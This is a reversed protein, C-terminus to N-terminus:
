ATLSHSLKIIEIKVIPKLFGYFTDQFMKPFMRGRITVFLIRFAIGSSNFSRYVHLFSAATDNM